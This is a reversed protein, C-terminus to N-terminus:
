DEDHKNIQMQSDKNKLNYIFPANVDSLQLAIKCPRYSDASQPM